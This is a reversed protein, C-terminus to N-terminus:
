LGWPFPTTEALKMGLAAYDRDAHSQRIFVPLDATAQAFKKDLCFPGAGMVQGVEHIVTKSCQEAALRVTLAVCSADAQPHEDIWRAAERAITLAQTLSL